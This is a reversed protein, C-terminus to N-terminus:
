LKIDYVEAREKIENLSPYEPLRQGQLVKNINNLIKHKMSRLEKKFKIYFLAVFIIHRTDPEKETVYLSHKFVEKKGLKKNPLYYYRRYSLIKIGYRAYASFATLVANLEERSSFLIEEENKYYIISNAAVRPDTIEEHKKLEKLFDIAKGWLKENLEYKKNQRGVLSIMRAQKIKKFLRTRGIKSELMIESVSKPEFLCTLLELGSDALVSILGPSEGLLQLLLSVPATKAPEFFGGSRAILGKEALKQGGRYVQARSKKLASAIKAVKRNGQTIQEMIRLETRSLRM